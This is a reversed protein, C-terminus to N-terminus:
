ARQEALQQAARERERALDARMRAQRTRLDPVLAALEDRDSPWYRLSGDYSQSGDPNLKIAMAEKRTPRGNADLGYFIALLTDADLPLFENNEKSDVTRYVQAAPDLRYDTMESSQNVGADTVTGGVIRLVGDKRGWLYQKWQIYAREGEVQWGFQ